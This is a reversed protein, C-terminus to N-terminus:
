SEKISHYNYKYQKMNIGKITSYKDKHVVSSKTKVNSNEIADILIDELHNYESYEDISSLVLANRFYKSHKALLPVNISINNQKLFFYMFTTIARTNGERFPHIRWLSSIYRSLNYVLEIKSMKKWKLSFYIKDLEKIEKSILSKETYLVSLNNLVLEQKEINVTRIEGSWDYIEDFLIKHIDLVNSTHHLSYPEALIKLLALNVLANEYEDLMEQNRINVLNRLVNTGKYVYPDSM